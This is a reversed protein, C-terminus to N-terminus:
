KPCTPDVMYVSDCSKRRKRSYNTPFKVALQPVGNKFFIFELLYDGDGKGEFCFRRETTKYSTRTGAQTTGENKRTEEIVKKSDLVTRGAKDRLEVTIDDDLGYTSPPGCIDGACVDVKGCLCSVKHRSHKLTSCDPGLNPTQCLALANLLFLLTSSVLFCNVSSCKVGLGSTFGRSSTCLARPRITGGFVEWGLNCRGAGGGTGLRRRSMPM